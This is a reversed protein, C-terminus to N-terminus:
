GKCTQDLPVFITEVSVSVEIGMPEIHSTYWKTALELNDFPGVVRVIDGNPNIIAKSLELCFKIM